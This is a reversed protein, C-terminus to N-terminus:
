EIRLKQTITYINGVVLNDFQKTLYIFSEDDSIFDITQIEEPVYMSFQTEKIGNNDTWSIPIIQSGNAFNLRVKGIKTNNYNTETGTNINQNVYTATNPYVTDTDEDIVNLTDVFNLLVNEYINKTFINTDNDLIKNTISLLQKPSIPMNNLYTNPIQITSTTTNNYLTKNYLDRAFLLKNNSYVRGKESILSNYDLYPLGNYNLSNYDEKIMYQFWTPKRPNTAYLYIQLLNFNSKIYITRQNYQFKQTEAILIPNWTDNVLRNFHYDATNNATDINDNFEVYIDSDCRDIYIAEINSRDYSGLYKEYITTTTNNVFSYKYLGIYKSDLTGTVGWRQNNQVFYVIDYDLFVSQKKYTDDDIYPQYLFTSISNLTVNGTYTKEVCDITRSSDLTSSNLCRFKVNENNFQAIASGFLRSFYQCYLIWDNAEGVNIKLGLIKLTRYSFNPSNSDAGMGFLIYHSSNPDKFMNKCYFNKYIDSFIYSTRLKISYDGNLNLTFNNTMVFRKQSSITEAGNLYSFASDDVFYFTGDEAQKMYQIYRLETGSSYEYITKVPKFDNDVLIIIGHSNNNTDLYGGYLVSLNTTLENGSIMGEFRFNNYPNPLFNKWDNRNISEQELFIENDNPLTPTINGVIYNLLDLKMDDTM